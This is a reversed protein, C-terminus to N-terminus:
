SQSGCVRYHMASRPSPSPRPQCPKHLGRTAFVVYASPFWDWTGTMLRLREPVIVDFHKELTAIFAHFSSLAPAYEFDYELTLQKVNRWDKVALIAAREAGQIDVKIGDPDHIDILEQLLTAGVSCQTFAVSPKVPQETTHRFSISPHMFFRVTKRASGVVARCDISIVAGDIQLSQIANLNQKLLSM